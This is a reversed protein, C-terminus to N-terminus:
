PHDPSEFVCYLAVGTLIAAIPVAFWVFYHHGAGRPKKNPWPKDTNQNQPDDPPDLIVHYATGEPVVRSDDDVTFTLAGRTCRLILEKSNLVTINGITPENGQPRIVATAVHLTFAKSNATSFTASGSGLQAAPAGEEYDWTLKSSASLLLRAAGARIQLSGSQDTNLVDGNFVTAGVSATSTGIHANQASVVMGVEPSSANLSSSILLGVCVVSLTRSLIDRVRPM